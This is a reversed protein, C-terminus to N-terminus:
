SCIFLCLYLCIHILSLMRLTLSLNGNKHGCFPTQTHTLFPGIGIMDPELKQLFRIDEILNETKQYPSGVMFGAGVQYGIEKLDFLCRKRNELNMSQPHLKQYHREDATEHRLLYRDAGADFYTQYSERSKEGLSM